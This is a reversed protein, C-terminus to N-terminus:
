PGPSVPYPIHVTLKTRLGPNKVGPLGGHRVQVRERLGLLGLVGPEDLAGGPLGVGDDVADLIVHTRHPHPSIKVASANAHLVVNTLAEQAASLPFPRWQEDLM